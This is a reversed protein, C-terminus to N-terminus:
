EEEAFGEACEKMGGYYPQECIKCQYYLIKDIAYQKVNQFYVYEPDMFKRDKHLEEHMARKM